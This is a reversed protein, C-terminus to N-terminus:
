GCGGVKIKRYIFDDFHITIMVSHVIMIGELEAKPCPIESFISAALKDNAVATLVSDIEFTANYKLLSLRMKGSYWGVKLPELSM